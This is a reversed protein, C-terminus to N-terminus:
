YPPSPKITAVVALAESPIDDYIDYGVYQSNPNSNISCDIPVFYLTKTGTQSYIKIDDAKLFFLGGTYVNDLDPEAYNFNSLPSTGLFVGDTDFGSVELRYKGSLPKNFNFVAQYIAPLALFAAIDKADWKLAHYKNKM